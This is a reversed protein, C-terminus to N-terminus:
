KWVPTSVQTITIFTHEYIHISKRHYKIWM